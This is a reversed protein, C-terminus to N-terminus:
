EKEVYLDEMHLELRRMIESDDLTGDPKYRRNDRVRQAKVHYEYRVLTHVTDDDQPNPEIGDAPHVMVGSPTKITELLLPLDTCVRLMDDTISNPDCYYVVDFTVSHLWFDGVHEPTRATVFIVNFEGNNVNQPTKDSRVVADPYARKLALIIGDRVQTYSLDKAM